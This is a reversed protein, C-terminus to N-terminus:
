TQERGAIIWAVTHCFINWLLFFGALMRGYFGVERLIRWFDTDEGYYEYGVWGVLATVAGISFLVWCVIMFRRFM